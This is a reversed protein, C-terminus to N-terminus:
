KYEAGYVTVDKFAFEMSVIEREERGERKRKIM